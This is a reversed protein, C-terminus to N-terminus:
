SLKGFNIKGNKLYLLLIIFKKYLMTHLFCIARDKQFPNSNTDEEGM